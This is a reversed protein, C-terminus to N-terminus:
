KNKREKKVQKRPKWYPSLYKQKAEEDLLLANQSKLEVSQAISRRREKSVESWIPTNLVIDPYRIQYVNTNKM